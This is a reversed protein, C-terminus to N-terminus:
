ERSEEKVLVRPVPEPNRYGALLRFWLPKKIHANHSEVVNNYRESWEKLATEAESFDLSGDPNRKVHEILYPPHPLHCNHAV